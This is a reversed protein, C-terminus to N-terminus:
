LSMTLVADSSSAEFGSLHALMGNQMTEQILFVSAYPRPLASRLARRSWCAIGGRAHDRTSSGDTVYAAHDLHDQVAQYALNNPNGYRTGISPFDNNGPLSLKGLV